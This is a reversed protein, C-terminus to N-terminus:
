IEAIVAKLGKTKDFNVGYNKIKRLLCYQLREKLTLVYPKEQQEITVEQGM